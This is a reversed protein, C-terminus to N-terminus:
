YELLYIQLELPELTVELKNNSNNYKRPNMQADILSFVKVKNISANIQLLAKQKTTEDLSGVAILKKNKYTVSYSFVKDNDTKLLSYHGKNILDLNEKKFAIAKLYERKFEPHKIRIPGTYNFIDFLGSHVYYYEDDTYSVPAKKNEYDYTFDDGYSFGDLFYTNLPLTTSLWLVMNWYNKNRLIPAKQDHTALASIISKGKFKNLIKQNTEIKKDFEKKTKINQFDSFSGYYSDFGANLLEDITTYRNVGKPAPNQWDPSAEALFFFNENKNKSKYRAYDIIKAWFEYPKIAAVDARIGDFGLDQAMDIFSKFNNLNEENLTKDDNYIKFLRVDTWDSPVVSNEDNDIIFWNPKKLSLDYSGCSPLDLIVSLNLRHAEKIFEKVEQKVTLDNTKDIIKDDLNDDLEYFSDLAYLSGATGLAKLKGSKTIPLVYIVNIGEAALDKLKEKANLFTGMVDGNEPIIIGDKDNDVSGFNRINITYIIAENNKFLERINKQKTQQALCINGSLFLTLYLIIIRRM